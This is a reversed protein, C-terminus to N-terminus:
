YTVLSQGIGVEVLLHASGDTYHVFSAGDLSITQTPAVPDAAPLGLTLHDHGDGRVLLAPGPEGLGPLAGGALDMIDELNLRLENDGPGLDIREVGTLWGPPLVSLDLLQGSGDLRLTDAGAGGEAVRDGPDLVLVDDGAGGRLVDAGGGGDLWDNGTGGLLVDDSGAGAIVDHGAHGVITEPGDGDTYVDDGESLHVTGTPGGFVVYARGSLVRTAGADENPAGVLIDHFSDGNFDGVGAV